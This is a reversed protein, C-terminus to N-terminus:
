PPPVRLAAVGDALAALIVDGITPLINKPAGTHSFAKRAIAEGFRAVAEAIAEWSRQPWECTCLPAGVSPKFVGCGEAHHISGRVRGLAAAVQEALPTM